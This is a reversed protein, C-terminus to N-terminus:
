PRDTALRRLRSAASRRPLSKQMWFWAAAPRPWAGPPPECGGSITRPPGSGFFTPYAFDYVRTPPPSRSAMADHGSYPAFTPERECAFPVPNLRMTKWGIGALVTGGGCGSRLPLTHFSVRAPVPHLVAGVLRRGMSCLDAMWRVIIASIEMMTDAWFDSPELRRVRRKCFYGSIVSLKYTRRRSRGGM